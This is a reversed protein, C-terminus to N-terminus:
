RVDGVPTRNRRLVYLVHDGIAALPGAIVRDAREAARLLLEHGSVWPEAASPPVFIGVGRTSELRFWPAFARVVDSKRHYRVTFDHGGLRAPVDGRRFRRLSSAPRGRLLEVVWEGVAFTGFIVLMAAGDTRVCAAISRATADLSPVCNLGAFNSFVGDFIGLEARLSGVSEASAVRPPPCGLPALKRTAIDVMAPSPDTLQVTMGAEQTLWAADEGTGGGVELIRSGAPFVRTLEARVARRQAAVSLWAGYREDFRPAVADFAQAAPSLTLM